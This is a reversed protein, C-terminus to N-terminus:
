IAFDAYVLDFNEDYTEVTLIGGRTLNRPLDFLVQSKVTGGQRAEQPWEENDAPTVQYTTENVQNDTTTFTWTLDMVLDGIREEGTFTAEYTVLVYQHRPPDNFENTQEIIQNANLEVNTVKVNWNGVEVLDGLTATQTEPEEAAEEADDAEESSDEVPAPSEAEEVVPAATEEGACGGLLVSLAFAPVTFLTLRLTM